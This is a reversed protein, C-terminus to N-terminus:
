EELGGNNISSELIRIKGSAPLGNAIVVPMVRTIRPKWLLNLVNGLYKCIDPNDNGRFKGHGAKPRPVWSHRVGGEGGNIIAFPPHPSKFAIELSAPIWFSM